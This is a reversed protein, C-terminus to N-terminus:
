DCLVRNRVLLFLQMSRRMLTGSFTSLLVTNESSDLVSFSGGECLKLSCAFVLNARLYGAIGFKSKPLMPLLLYLTKAQFHFNLFMDSVKTSCM